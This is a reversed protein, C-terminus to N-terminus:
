RVLVGPAAGRALPEKWDAWAALFSGLELHRSSLAWAPISALEQYQRHTHAVLKEANESIQELRELGEALLVTAIEIGATHLRFGEDMVDRTRSRADALDLVGKGADMLSYGPSDGVVIVLKRANQWWGVHQCAELGEALADVFDGGSCSPLRRLEKLAGEPGLRRLKRESEAPHLLYSGPSVAPMPFDGFAFVATRIGDPFRRGLESLAPMWSGSLQEWEPTGLLRAPQGLAEASTPHLSTGDILFVIEAARTELPLLIPFDELQAPSLHFVPRDGCDVRLPDRKLSVTVREGASLALEGVFVLSGAERLRIQLASAGEMAQLRVADQAEIDMATVKGTQPDVTDLTM